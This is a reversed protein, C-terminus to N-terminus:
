STLEILEANTLATTYELVKRVGQSSEYASIHSAWTLTETGIDLTDILSGNYFVSLSENDKRIGIKITSGVLLGIAVGMNFAYSSSLTRAYFMFANWYWNGSGGQSLLNFSNTSALGLVDTEIVLTGSEGSGLSGFQYVAPFPTTESNRTAPTGNTKILSTGYAGQEVQCGYFLIQNNNTEKRLRCNNSFLSAGADTTFTVSLRQWESTATFDQSLLLATTNTDIRLNFRGDGSVNKAYISFTYETNGSIALTTNIGLLAGDNIGTGFTVLQANKTGDPSISYNYDVQGANIATLREDNNIYNTRQPELLLVPCGESYDLRNNGSLVTEILGDKNTRTASTARTFSFDGTGDSPIASYVVNDITSPILALSPRAM